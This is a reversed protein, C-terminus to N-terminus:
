GPTGAQTIELQYDPFVPLFEGKTTLFKLANQKAVEPDSFTAPPWERYNRRATLVLEGDTSLHHALRVTRGTQTDTLRVGFTM